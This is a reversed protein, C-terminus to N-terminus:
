NGMGQEASQEGNAAWMLGNIQLRNSKRNRYNNINNYAPLPICLVYIQCVSSPSAFTRGFVFTMLKILSASAYFSIDKMM